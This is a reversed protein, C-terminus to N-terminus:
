NLSTELQGSYMKVKVRGKFWRGDLEEYSGRGFCPDPIKTQM